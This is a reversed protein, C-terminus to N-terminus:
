QVEVSAGPTPPMGAAAELAASLRAEASEKAARAEGNQRKLERAIGQFRDREAEAAKRAEVATEADALTSRLRELEERGAAHERELAAM